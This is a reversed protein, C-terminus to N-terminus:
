DHDPPWLGGSHGKARIVATALLAGNAEITSGLATLPIGVELPAGLRQNQIAQSADITASKGGRTTVTLTSGSVATLIGSILHPSAPAAVASALSTGTCPCLGFINLQGRTTAPTTSTDQWASAVYVKGNAVVPVINANGTTNPWAGATATFLQTLTGDTNPAFAYLPVTVDPPTGTGKPRGVAWIIASGATTGNSSVSTFFGGDSDWFALPASGKFALPPTASLQVQYTKLSTGQSTVIWSTNKTDVFFSPGCWCREGNPDSQIYVPSSMSAPNLLFLRGDKGAAAAFYPTNPNGTPFVLVGGSGLDIDFQDLALTDLGTTPTFVGKITNLNRSLGVVSEQIHTTANWTSKSPCQPPNATWNCDSNGTSFYLNTGDSAIGYGSMWIATLFWPTQPPVIPDTTQTDTLENHPLASLTKTIENWHWGLLWGRSKDAPFDCFSGFGAYVNNGLINDGLMLLGPRQRQVAANFTYTTGDALIHSATIPISAVTALTSLDLAYLIYQPSSGNVYAIVFLRSPGIVPLGLDIVPTGTIGVNPGNNFCGIQSAVPVPPGLNTSVLIAGSSADIAYVTNSETAVYVVDDTTTNCSAIATYKCPVILPQADVQDDLRVPGAVIGFNTQTVNTATLLKENKNWGTRQNDYHYSTVAVRTVAVRADLQQTGVALQAGGLMAVFVTGLFVSATVIPKRMFEEGLPNLKLAFM